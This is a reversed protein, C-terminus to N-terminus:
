KGLESLNDVLGAGDPTGFFTGKDRLFNWDQQAKVLYFIIKLFFSVNERKQSVQYNEKTGLSSQRPPEERFRFSFENQSASLPCQGRSRTKVLCRWM